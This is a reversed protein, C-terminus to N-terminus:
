GLIKYIKQVVSADWGRKNSLIIITARDCLRRSFYPCFGHWLGAHFVVKSDDDQVHTRWGYGYNRKGRFEKNQPTYAEELTSTQVLLDAYLAQDWLFLDEVTSFVGKDGVIGDLYDFGSPHWNSLHGTAINEQYKTYDHATYIFSNAMGIKKFINNEVFSKFSEGSAKEVIAALIAYGTNSYDHRRNPVFNVGPHKDIMLKVLSQNSLLTRRNTIHDCFWMYESLGSRHCLLMRITINKYPFRPFFKEIKDELRLKGQEKLMLISVATFQKSVSALQFVTGVNLKKRQRYNAYGFAGAYLVQGEQAVLITGNFFHKKLLQNIQEKKTEFGIHQRILYNSDLSLDYFVSDPTKIAEQTYAKKPQCAKCFFLLTALLYLAITTNLRM